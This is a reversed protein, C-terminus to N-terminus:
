ISLTKLQTNCYYQVTISHLIVISLSSIYCYTSYLYYQVSIAQLLILCLYNTVILVTYIIRYQCLLHYYTAVLKVFILWSTRVYLIQNFIVKSFRLLKKQILLSIKIQFNMIISTNTSLFSTKKLAAM